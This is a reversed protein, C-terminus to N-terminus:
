KVRAYRYEDILKNNKFVAKRSVGELKFGCKELVKKSAENGEFVGAFLREFGLSEFAYNTALIAAKTAIGKGWFPEGLWYGIEAGKKYIDPQLVLGIVGVFQFQYEIAFTVQPEQRKVMDLFKEADELLYPYPFMDRLNNWIKKNNALETLRERDAYRLSRLRVKGDVLEM